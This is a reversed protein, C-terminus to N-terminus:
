QVENRREVRLHLPHRPRLTVVTDMVVTTDDARQLTVNAMMTALIVAAEMMAFMNGLCIRSGAGFPFYTYRDPQTAEDVFRQPRFQEPEAYYRSSRHTAFTSFLLIARRPFTTGAVTFPEQVSRGFGFAPPYLRLTEKIVADLLPLNAIKDFTIPEGALVGDIEAMLQQAIAPHETLLYWSWTLAAATTEHGAVFLTICEDLLVEEPMPNGEEDRARLLMSLLDGRDEGEAQRQRVINRLLERIERLAAAQRRHQRTPIWKPLVIFQGLQEEAITLITKMLRGIKDTQDVLDIGYMTKAIIRLTLEALSQDIAVIQGTQWSDVMEQTYAAMTEAYQRIRTAHFAPQVLHRQRKWQAGEAVFVGQGMIRGLAKSVFPDRHMKDAHKVLCERVVEPDTIFFMEMWLLQYHAIGGEEEAARQAFGLQDQQMAQMEALSLRRAM